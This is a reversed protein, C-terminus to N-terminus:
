QLTNHLPLPVYMYKTRKTSSACLAKVSSRWRKRDASMQQVMGWTWGQDKMEKEVSRRWTEKPRGRNRKGPPTWRLASKPIESTDKRLVHGIWKWRRERIQESIAATSTKYYLEENTITNPWFIKLIRRLLKTQFNVQSGKQWRRDNLPM